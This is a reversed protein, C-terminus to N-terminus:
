CSSYAKWIGKYVYKEASKDRNASLKENLDLAGDPSAYSSTTFGTLQMTPDQALQTM